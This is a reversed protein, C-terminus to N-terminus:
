EPQSHFAASNWFLGLHWHPSVEGQEGWSRVTIATWAVFPSVFCAIDVGLALWWCRSHDKEHSSASLAVGGWIAIFLGYLNLFFQLGVPTASARPYLFYKHVLVPAWSAAAFYFAATVCFIRLQLIAGTSQGLGYPITSLVIVALAFLTGLYAPADLWRRDKRLCRLPPTRERWAQSVSTDSADEAHAIGTM